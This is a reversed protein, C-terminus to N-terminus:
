SRMARAVWMRGLAWDGDVTRKSVRLLGAIELSSLGGFVKLEVIRAARPDDRSLRELAEDFALLELHGAGGEGIADVLTVREWGDGGRKQAGRRRAHDVLIQRMARAAIGLFHVRDEAQVVTQDVLKMYADHVLETPQLTHGSRERRMLARALRRLEPYVAAFLRESAGPVRARHEELLATVSAAVDAGGAPDEDGEAAEAAAADDTAM